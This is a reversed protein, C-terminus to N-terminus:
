TGEAPLASAQYYDEADQRLLDAKLYPLKSVLADVTAALRDYTVAPALKKLPNLGITKQPGYQGTLLHEPVVFFHWQEARRHDAIDPNGEPHWAFIYIDGPRIFDAESPDAFEVWVADYNSDTWYGTRTAIDFSPPRKASSTQMHWTQCAASQKVELRVGEDNELDWSSWEPGMKWGRGLAFLILGEVYDGRRINAILPEGFFRATLYQSVQAHLTTEMRGIGRIVFGRSVGPAQKKQM